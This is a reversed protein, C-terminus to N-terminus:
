RSHDRGSVPRALTALQRVEFGLWRDAAIVTIATAAGLLVLRLAPAVTATAFPLIGLILAAIVLPTLRLAGPALWRAASFLLIADIAMRLTWAAAAGEIGFRRTLFWALLGYVPLLGLQFAATLRSRGGAQLLALPTAAVGALVTGVAVWRVVGAANAAFTPGMWLSLWDPALVALALAPLFLALLTATTTREYIRGIAAQDSGRQAAMAPFAATSTAASIILLKSVVEQPTTYFAVATLPALLGVVFRDLYLMLSATVNAVTMWGGTSVLDSFSSVTWKQVRGLTPYVRLTAMGLALTGAIRTAALVVIAITLSPSVLVSIMPALYGAAAVPTRVANLLGFRQRGEMVGRMASAIAVFPMSVAAAALAMWAHDISSRGATAIIPALWPGAGLLAAGALAGLAALTWATAWILRLGFIDPAAQPQSAVVGTLARRFGLDFISLYGVAAWALMLIGLQEDGLRHQIVPISVLAALAPIVQGALNFATGRRLSM